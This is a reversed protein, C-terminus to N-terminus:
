PGTLEVAPVDAGTLAAVRNVEADLARRPVKEFLEATLTGRDVSWVGAVRGEHLVVASIWGATRSVKAKHEAPIVGRNVAIVYQDFPGLLRVGRAPATALLEDLHETAAYAPAGDVDVETIAGDALLGTFWATVPRARVGRSLWAIFDDRSAPGYTGLYDLVLRPGAEEPDVPRWDAFVASPSTFTVRTGNPPGHCLLGAYAAPKLMSGWGSRLAEGFHDGVRATLEVALEERTHPRTTLLEDVAALLAEMEAKTVGAARYWVPRDWTRQAGLVACQLAAQRATLLHLTGRVSWMRVLSREEGLGAAVEDRAPRGLRVAVALDASSAVQAQVGCLRDAVEVAGAAPETLFQRDMRWALVQATSVGAM